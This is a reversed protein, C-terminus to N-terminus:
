PELIRYYVLEGAESGAPGEYIPVFLTVLIARRGGIEVLELTPNTFALSGAHTHVDLQEAEGTEDVLFVRWTSSDEFAFRGEIITFRIGESTLTDRDGVSDRVGLAEIARDLDPQPAPSWSTWHSTGRAQLDRECDRYYHFGVDLWTSSASYLNPTGEACSSLRRPADLTKSAEASLLDVWTEYYAFKLHNAPKQEWAVVYGGDSAPEITPM